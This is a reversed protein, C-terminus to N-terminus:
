ETQSIERVVKREIEKDEVKEGAEQKRSRGGSRVNYYMTNSAPCSGM